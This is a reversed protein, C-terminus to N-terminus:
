VCVHVCARACACVCLVKETNVHSPSREVFIWVQKQRWILQSDMFSSISFCFGANPSISPTMGIIKLPSCTLRTKLTTKLIKMDYLKRKNISIMCMRILGGRWVGEERQVASGRGRARCRLREGSGNTRRAHHVEGSGTDPRQNLKLRAM